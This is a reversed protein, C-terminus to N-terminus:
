KHGSSKEFGPILADIVPHLASACLLKIEAAGALTASTFGFLAVGLVVTASVSLIRRRKMDDRGRIFGTEGSVIRRSQTEVCRFFVSQKGMTSMPSSAHWRAPRMDGLPMSDPARRMAARPSSSVDPDSVVDTLRGPPVCLM